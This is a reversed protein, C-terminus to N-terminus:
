RRCRRTAAASRPAGPPGRRAHELVPEGSARRQDAGLLGPLVVLGALPEDLPPQRADSSNQTPGSVIRPESLSPRPRPMSWSARLDTSSPNAAIANAADNPM